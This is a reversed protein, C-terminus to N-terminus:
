LSLAQGPPGKVIRPVHRKNSPQKQVKYCPGQFASVSSLFEQRAKRSYKLCENKWQGTQGCKYCKGAGPKLASYRKGKPGSGKSDQAGARYRSAGAARGANSSIIQVPWKPGQSLLQRRRLLDQAPEAQVSTQLDTSVFSREDFNSHM